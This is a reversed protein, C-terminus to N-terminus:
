YLEYNTFSISKLLLGRFFTDIKLEWNGVGIDWQTSNALIRFVGHECGWIVEWVSKWIGVGM